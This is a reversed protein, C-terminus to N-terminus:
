YFKNQLNKNKFILKILNYIKDKKHLNFKIFLIKFIKNKHYKNPLKILFCKYFINIKRKLYKDHIFLFNTHLM